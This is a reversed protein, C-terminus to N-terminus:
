KSMYFVNANFVLVNFNFMYIYTYSIKPWTLYWFLGQLDTQDWKYICYSLPPPRLPGAPGMEYVFVLPFLFYLYLDSYLYVLHPPPPLVSLQGPRGWEPGMLSKAEILSWGDSGSRRCGVIIVLVIIVCLLLYLYVYLYLLLYLYVYLYLLGYLYLWLGQEKSM